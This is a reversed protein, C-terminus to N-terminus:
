PLIVNPAEETVPDLMVDVPFRETTNHVSRCGCLCATAIGAIYIWRIIQESM